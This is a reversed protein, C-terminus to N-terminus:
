AYSIYLYWVVFIVNNDGYEFHFVMVFFNM